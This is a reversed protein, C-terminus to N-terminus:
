KKEKKQKNKTEIKTFIALRCTVLIEFSENNDLTKCVSFPNDTHQQPINKRVRSGFVPPYLDECNRIGIMKITLHNHIGSFRPDVQNIDKLFSGFPMM